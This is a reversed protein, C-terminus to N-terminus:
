RNIIFTSVCEGIVCEISETILRTEITLHELDRLNLPLGLSISVWSWISVTGLPDMDGRM